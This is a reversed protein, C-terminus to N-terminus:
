AGDGPTSRERQLVGYLTGEDIRVEFSATTAALLLETLEPTAPTFGGRSLPVSVRVYLDDDDYAVELELTGEPRSGGLVVSALEDTALVLDRTSAEDCGAEDFAIAAASRVVTLYRPAAPVTM